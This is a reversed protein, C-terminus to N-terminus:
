TRELPLTFEVALGAGRGHASLTGGLSEVIGKSLALGLGLGDRKTSYFPEFLRGFQEPDLGGGSDAVSVRYGGADRRLEVTVPHELRGAEKHADHANQLLNFIVQQIQLKDAQLTDASAGGAYDIRADPHAVKFLAIAEDVVAHIEVPHSVEVSKKAFTRINRIIGAARESQAEIERCGERLPEPDLRGADLRRVMGRAYNGIAALPQNLEHAIASAMGGLIGLRRAHELASQRKRMEEEMRRQEAQMRNLERTRRNILYEVRVTHFIWVMALGVALLLWFRYRQFMDELTRQQLNAYQGLKLDHFLEDVIAYHAPIAWRYGQETRPMELLAVAVRRSLEDDSHRLAAFPWDPYLRSSTRCPFGAVPVPSLVRLADARIAGNAIMQELLCTRVIGADAKGDRVALAINQIPFGVFELRGLDEEPEIGALILERAAIQYCCFADPSAALLHKGKLDRLQRLSSDARAVIASGVAETPSLALPSDLTAIRSIGYLFGLETYNGGNTIVFDVRADAVAQRLAPHDLGIFEFRYDPLRRNLWTRVGAWEQEAQEVGKDALVGVRVAAPAAAGAPTALALAGALALGALRRFTATIGSRSLPADIM